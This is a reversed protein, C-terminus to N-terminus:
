LVRWCPRNSSGTRTSRSPATESSISAVSYEGLNFGAEPVPLVTKWRASRFDSDEHEESKEGTAVLRLRKPWRLNLDYLAFQSTDGFHPYWSERASVFLVDNGVNEIVNGRYRVRLTFTDGTRPPSPLFICLTDDGRSRLEQETLGENQFYTLSEGSPLAISEVKLVRALQLFVVSEGGSVVRFDVATDGELSTDDHITTSVRYRLAEFPLGPPSSGPLSYSSWVDFYAMKNVVRSQGLLFNERHMQDML